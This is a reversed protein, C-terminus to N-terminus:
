RASKSLYPSTKFSLVHEIPSAPVRTGALGDLRTGPDQFTPSRGARVLLSTICLRSFDAIKLKSFIGPPLLFVYTYTDPNFKFHM